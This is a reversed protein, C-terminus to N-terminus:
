EYDSLVELEDESEEKPKSKTKTSKTSKTKAIKKSVTKKPPAKEEKKASTGKSNTGTSSASKEEKKTTTSKSTGKSGSSASKEEKKASTGKSSSNSNVSKEEKKTSNSSTSKAEKAQEQYPAKEDESLEKWMAGLIKSIGGFKEDPNEDKVTQRHEDCFFLYGSKGKKEGTKKSCKAKSVTKKSAKPKREVCEDERDLLKLLENKTIKSSYEIGLNDAEEKLQKITTKSSM